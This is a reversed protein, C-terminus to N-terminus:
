HAQIKLPEVARGGLGPSVDVQDDGKPDVLSSFRDLNLEQDYIAWGKVLADDAPSGNCVQEGHG